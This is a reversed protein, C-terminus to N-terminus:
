ELTEFGVSNRLAQVLVPENLENTLSNLAIALM